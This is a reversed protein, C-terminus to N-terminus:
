VHRSAFNRRALSLLAMGDSPFGHRTRWPLINGLGLLFSVIAFSAVTNQFNTNHSTAVVFLLVGAFVFNALPGALSFLALRSASKIPAKSISVAGGIDGSRGHWFALKGTAPYYAFPFVAIYNISWGCSRAAAAHGLEHVLESVLINAIYLGIFFPVAVGSQFLAHSATWVFMTPLCLIGYAIARFFSTMHSGHWRGGWVFLSASAERM